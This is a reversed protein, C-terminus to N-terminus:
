MIIKEIMRHWNECSIKKIDEETFGNKQMAMLLNPIESADKMGRLESSNRVNETSQFDLCSSTSTDELFECFDFGFGVRDIGAISVMHEIHKALRDVTKESTESAIFDPYANVGIMGGTEIVAKIMDDTLNRPVNCLKRSASHTAVVPGVAYKMVDWFSKDNLHSVDFLMHKEQIKRLACIGLKTLGRDEEGRIGTALANQENWTLGAHRVGFDYLRDIQDIDEGIASLGECGHFVYFVGETRAQQMEGYNHVVRLIDKCMPLEKRVADMIQELRLEPQADYPPDIWMVFVSGEVGGKHLREYHYKRFIDKEGRLTKVTVDSWIDSHSDFIM